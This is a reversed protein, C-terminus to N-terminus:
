SVYSFHGSFNIEKAVRVMRLVSGDRVPVVSQYHPAMFHSDEFYGMFLPCLSGSVENNYGGCSLSFFDSKILM